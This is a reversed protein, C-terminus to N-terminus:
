LCPQVDRKIQLETCRSQPCHSEWELRLTACGSSVIDVLSLSLPDLASFGDNCICIRGDFHIM